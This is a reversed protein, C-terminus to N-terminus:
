LINTITISNWEGSPSQQTTKLDNNLVNDKRQDTMAIGVIFEPVRIRDFINSSFVTPTMNYNEHELSTWTELLKM